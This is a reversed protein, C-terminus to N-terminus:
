LPVTGSMSTRPPSPTYRYEYPKSHTLPLGYRAWAPIGLRFLRRAFSLDPELEIQADGHKIVEHTYWVGGGGLRDAMDLYVTNHVLMVAGGFGRVRRLTEGPRPMAITRALGDEDDFVNVPMGPEIPVVGLVVRFDEGASIRERGDVGLLLEPLDPPFRIDDDVQLVWEAGAEIARAVIRNRNHGYNSGPELKYGKYNPLGGWEAAFAHLSDLYGSSAGVRTYPTGLALSLTHTM